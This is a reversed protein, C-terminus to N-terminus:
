AKFIVKVSEGSKAQTEFAEKAKEFPFEHSILVNRDV